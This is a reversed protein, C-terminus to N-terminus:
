ADLQKQQLSRIHQSRAEIKAILRGLTINQAAQGCVAENEAPEAEGQNAVKHLFLDKEITSGYTFIAQKILFLLDEYPYPKKYYNINNDIFDTVKKIDADGSGYYYPCASLTQEIKRSITKENLFGSDSTSAFLLRLLRFFGKFGKFYLSSARDAVATPHLPAHPSRTQEEIHPLYDYRLNRYFTQLYALMTRINQMEQLTPAKFYFESINKCLRKSIDSLQSLIETFSQQRLEEIDALLVDIELLERKFANRGQDLFHIAQDLAMRSADIYSVIIARAVGPLPPIDLKAFKVLLNQSEEVLDTVHFDPKELGAMSSVSTLVTYGVSFMEKDRVKRAAELRALPLLTFFDVKERILSAADTMLNKQKQLADLPANLQGCVEKLIRVQRAAEEPALGSLKIDAELNGLENAHKAVERILRRANSQYKEVAQLLTDPSIGLDVLIDDHERITVDKWKRIEGNHLIEDAERRCLALFSKIEKILENVTEM